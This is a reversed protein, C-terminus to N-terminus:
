RVIPEEPKKPEPPEEILILGGPPLSGAMGRAMAETIEMMQLIEPPITDDDDDDDPGGIETITITPGGFGGASITLTGSAPM